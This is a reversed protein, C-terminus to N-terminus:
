SLHFCYTQNTLLLGWFKLLWQQEDQWHPAASWLSLTIVELIRMRPSTSSPPKQTLQTVWHVESSKMSGCERHLHHYGGRMCWRWMGVCCEVFAPFPVVDESLWFLFDSKGPLKKSVEQDPIVKFRAAMDGRVHIDWYLQPTQTWGLCQCPCVVTPCVWSENPSQWKEVLDRSQESNGRPGM